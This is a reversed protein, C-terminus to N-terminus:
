LQTDILPDLLDDSLNHLLHVLLDVSVPKIQFVTNTTTREWREQFAFPKGNQTKDTTTQKEGPLVDWM